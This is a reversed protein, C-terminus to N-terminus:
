IEIEGRFCLGDYVVEIIYTGSLDAPLQVSTTTAPVVTAYELTENGVEDVSYLNLSLDIEDLFYLTHDTQGIQPIEIPTRPHLPDPHIEVLSLQIVIGFQAPEWAHIPTMFFLTVALLASKLLSAKTKMNTLKIHNIILNTM